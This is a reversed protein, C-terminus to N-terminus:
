NKLDCLQTELQYRCLAYFKMRKVDNKDGSNTIKFKLTTFSFTKSDHFKPLKKDIEYYRTWTCITKLDPNYLRDFLVKIEDFISHIILSLPINLNKSLQYRCMSYFEINKEYNM